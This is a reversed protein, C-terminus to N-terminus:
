TPGSLSAQVSCGRMVASWSSRSSAMRLISSSASCSSRRCLSSASRARWSSSRRLACRLPAPRRRRGRRGAAAGDLSGASGANGCGGPRLRSSRRAAPAARGDVVAIRADLGPVTGVRPRRRRHGVRLRLDRWAPAPPARSGPARRAAGCAAARRDRRLRHRLAAYRDRRATRRCTGAPSCTSRASCFLM